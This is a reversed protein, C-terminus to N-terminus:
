LCYLYRFSTFSRARGNEDSVVSMNPMSKQKRKENHPHKVKHIAHDAFNSMNELRKINRLYLKFM